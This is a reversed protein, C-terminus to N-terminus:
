LPLYYKQPETQEHYRDRKSTSATRKHMKRTKSHVQTGSGSSAGYCLFSRCLLKIPLMSIVQKTFKKRGKYVRGFSGQGVLELIHYREAVEM